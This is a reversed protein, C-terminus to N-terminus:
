GSIDFDATLCAFNDVKQDNGHVSISAAYHGLPAFSPILWSVSDVFEDGPSYTGPNTAAMDQQYLTIPSTSGQATFQVNVLIAKIEVVVNFVIDLNLVVNNGVLPPNPVSTGQAVDYVKKSLCEGWKVNSASSGLNIMSMVISMQLPSERPSAALWAEM